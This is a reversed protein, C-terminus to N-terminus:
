DNKKKRQFLGKTKAGLDKLKEVSKNRRNPDRERPPKSKSRLSSIMNKLGRKKSKDQQIDEVVVSKKNEIDASKKNLM